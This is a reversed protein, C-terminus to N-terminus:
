ELPGLVAPCQNIGYDNKIDVVSQDVVSLERDVASLEDVARTVQQQLAHKKGPDTEEPLQDRLQQATEALTERRTVLGLRFDQRSQYAKRITKCTARIQDLDHPPIM